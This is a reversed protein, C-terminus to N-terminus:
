HDQEYTTFGFSIYGIRTKTGSPCELTKARHYDKIKGCNKCKKKM